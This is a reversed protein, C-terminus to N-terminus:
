IKLEAYDKLTKLIPALSEAETGVKKIRARKGADLFATLIKGGNSPPLSPVGIATFFSSWHRYLVIRYELPPIFPIGIGTYVTDWHHYM